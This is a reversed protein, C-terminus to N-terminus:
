FAYSFNHLTTITIAYFITSKRTLFATVIGCVISHKCEDSGSSDKGKIVKTTLM